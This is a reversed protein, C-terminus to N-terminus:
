IFRWGHSQLWSIRGPIWTQAGPRQPAKCCRCSANMTAMGGPIRNGKGRM